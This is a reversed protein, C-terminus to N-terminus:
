SLEQFHAISVLQHELPIGPILLYYQIWHNTDTSKVLFIKYINILLIVHINNIYKIVKLKGRGMMKPHMVDM